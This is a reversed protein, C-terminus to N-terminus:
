RWGRERCSARGIQRFRGCTAARQLEIGRDPEVDSPLVRDLDARLRDPHAGLDLDHLVLQRRREALGLEVDHIALADRLGAGHEVGADLLPDDLLGAGPVGVLALADALTTVVRPLPKLLIGG